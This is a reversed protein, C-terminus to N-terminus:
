GAEGDPANTGNIFRRLMWASTVGVLFIHSALDALRIAVSPNGIKALSLPVVVLNMVGYMAVGFMAGLAWWSASAFPPQRVVFLFAAVAVAMIAFHAVVGAMPAWAATAAAEGALGSAVYRPVADLPAGRSAALSMAFLFDLAGAVIAAALVRRPAHTVAMRPLNPLM